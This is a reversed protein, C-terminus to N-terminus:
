ADEIIACGPKHQVQDSVGFVPKRVILCLKMSLQTLVSFLKLIKPESEEKQLVCTYCFNSGSHMSFKLYSVTLGTKLPWEFSSWFYTKLVM